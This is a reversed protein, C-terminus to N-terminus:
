EPQLSTGHLKALRFQRGRAVINIHQIRIDGAIHTIPLSAGNCCALAFTVTSTSAFVVLLLGDRDHDNFEHMLYTCLQCQSNQKINELTQLVYASHFDINHGQSMRYYIIQEQQVQAQSSEFRFGRSYSDVIRPNFGRCSLCSHPLISAELSTPHQPINPAAMETLFSISTLFPISSVPVLSLQFIAAALRKALLSIPTM